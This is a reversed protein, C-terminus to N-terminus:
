GDVIRRRALKLFKADRDIGIVQSAGCNLGSVLSTGSGCFPDLLKGGEPLLYKCFWECLTYPTATPHNSGGPQGGVPIPLLNFPTSGGREDLAQGIRSNRYTRRSPGSTRLAKDSRSRAQAEDSPTWLVKEQCRFCDPEGLWLCIKVSPR